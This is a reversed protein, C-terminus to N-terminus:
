SYQLRCSFQLLPNHGRYSSGNFLSLRRGIVSFGSSVPWFQDTSGTLFPFSFQTVSGGSNDGERSGSSFEAGSITSLRHVDGVPLLSLSRMKNKVPQIRQTSMEHVFVVFPLPCNYTSAVLIADLNIKKVISGPVLDLKTVSM